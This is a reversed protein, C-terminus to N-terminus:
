AYQRSIEKLSLNNKDEYRIGLTDFKRALLMTIQAVRLKKLEYKTFEFDKLDGTSTDKVKLDTPTNAKTITDHWEHVDTITRLKASAACFLSITRLWDTFDEPNEPEVFDQAIPFSDTNVLHSLVNPSPFTTRMVMAIPAGLRTVIPSLEWFGFFVPARQYPGIYWPKLFLTKFQFAMPFTYRSEPSFLKHREVGVLELHLLSSLSWSSPDLTVLEGDGVISLTVLQNLHFVKEPIPHRWGVHLSLCKLHVLKPLIEELDLGVTAEEKCRMLNLHLTTLRPFLYHHKRLIGNTITGSVDILIEAMFRRREEIAQYLLGDIQSFPDNHPNVVELRKAYTIDRLSSADSPLAPVCLRGCLNEVKHSDAYRKWFRCVSRIQARVQRFQRMAPMDRIGWYVHKTDDIQYMPCIWDQLTHTFEWPYEMPNLALLLTNDMIDDLIHEWVEVPLRNSAARRRSHKFGSPELCSM